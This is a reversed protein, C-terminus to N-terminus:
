HVYPALLAMVPQSSATVDNRDAELVVDPRGAGADV